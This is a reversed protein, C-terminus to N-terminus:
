ETKGKEEGALFDAIDAIINSEAYRIAQRVANKIAAADSSGHAKIVPKKLGLLPAGGHESADFKKKLGKLKPKVALFSLKTALSATFVTKLESFMYKGMGEITKLAINGSFGDAVLVDCKGTPIEKGEVNGIFRISPEETLAKHAEIVTPTGKHSEAGNNLLGVEPNEIGYMKKMYFAGMAAWQVLNEADVVPNAGSDLLLMPRDFPAITAIAPRKVGRIRRVILTGGVHLAGTNGASVLADAGDALMRLAVSMSSDKNARTVSMPDDEMTLIGDAHALGIGDLSLEEEAAVRRITEEQGVLVIEAEPYEKAALVAGKVTERPAFDGSMADILIKM